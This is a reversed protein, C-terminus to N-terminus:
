FDMTKPFFVMKQLFGNNEKAMVSVTMLTSLLLLIYSILIECVIKPFCHQLWSSWSSKMFNYILNM